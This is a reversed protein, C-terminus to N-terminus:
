AFDEDDEVEFAGEPVFESASSDANCTDEEDYNVMGYRMTSTRGIRTRRQKIPSEGDQGGLNLTSGIQVDGQELKAEKGVATSSAAAPFLGRGKVKKSPTDFMEFEEEAECEADLDLEFNSPSGLEAKIARKRKSDPTSVPVASAKRPTSTASSTIQGGTSGPAGKGIGFQSKSNGTSKVMQRMRVLRETIARPTPNEQNPTKPWAEAVKKTDVSINHIELIKLLLLQDNEPIWRLPM